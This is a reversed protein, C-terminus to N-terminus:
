LGLEGDVGLEDEDEVEKARRDPFVAKLIRGEGCM